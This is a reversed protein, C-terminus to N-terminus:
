KCHLLFAAIFYWSGKDALGGSFFNLRIVTPVNDLLLSIFGFFLLKNNIKEFSISM